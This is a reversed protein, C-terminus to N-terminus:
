LSARRVVAKHVRQAGAVPTFWIYRACLKCKELVTVNPPQANPCIPSEVLYTLATKLAPYGGFAGAVYMRLM